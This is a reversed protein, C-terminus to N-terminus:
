KKTNKRKSMDAKILSKIYKTFDPVQEKDALFAIMDKDKEIGLRFSFSKFHQKLYHNQYKRYQKLANLDWSGEPTVVRTGEIVAPQKTKKQEM